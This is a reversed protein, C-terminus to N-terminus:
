ERTLRLKDPHVYGADQLRVAIADARPSNGSSRYADALLALFRLPLRDENPGLLRVVSEVNTSIGAPDSRLEHVKAVVAHAHALLLRLEYNAPHQAALQDLHSITTTLTAIADDPAQKAAKLEGDLIQVKSDLIAWELVSADQDLLRRSERTARNLVHAAQELEDQYILAELLALDVSIATSVNLTNESDLALLEDALQRARQSLLVASELDGEAIAIDARANQSVMLAQQIERNGPDRDLLTEHIGSETARYERAAQLMGADESADALWALSQARMRQWELDHPYKKGLDDFVSLATRFNDLSGRANGSEYFYVGLNINSHGWEANWDPNEPDLRVLREALSVYDRFASEAGALDGLRWDLYGIWFVSQAHEFIRQGDDPARSLLEGTSQYALEFADRAGRIDGQLDDVEGLLHFARARRGLSSETHDSPAVRSYYDITKQGVADLVDLRGVADLRDRLDSLMFEILDEAEARRLQESSRAEVAVYALASMVIMGLASMATAAVLKRNRRQADRQILEDLGIGLLGSVIKLNALRLGDGSDRRDAAVPEVTPEEEGDAQLYGLAAPFCELHATAPDNAAFPEGDVIYCLIKDSRHTKRFQAIELDVWRSARAARSCVVILYESRELADNLTDSLNAGASLEERDRFITGIRREIAGHRGPKGVLRSPVRFSELARQLRAAAKSDSHSYTIFAKYSKVAM